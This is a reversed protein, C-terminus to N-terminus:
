RADEGVMVTDALRADGAIIRDYLAIGEREEGALCHARAQLWRLGAARLWAVPMEDIAGLEEITASARLDRAACAPTFTGKRPQAAAHLHMTGGVVLSLLLATCRTHKKTM